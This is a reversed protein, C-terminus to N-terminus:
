IEAVTLKILLSRNDDAAAKNRRIEGCRECRHIVVFGKKPDPESRVPRLAGRCTNARDGPNVDVHISWLCHPCHNRSTYGLPSVEKGCHLCIFGDDNKSFRKQELSDNRQSDNM